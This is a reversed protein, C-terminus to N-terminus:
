SRKISEEAYIQKKGVNYYTTLADCFQSMIFRFQKPNLNEFCLAMGAADQRIVQAELRYGKWDIGISGNIELPKEKVFRIGCGQASLDIMEAAFIGEQTHIMLAKEKKIELRESKRFIPRQWAAQIAIIMGSANYASWFVNIMTSSFLLTGDQWRLFAIWWAFLTVALLLLHPLVLLAQFQSRDYRVEKSTVQFTSKIHFLEKLISFSLYPAMVMEYYHGWRMTRTRPSLLRTVLLQALAYPVYHDILQFVSADLLVCDFLFFLLPCLIFVLKQLNAFWYFVGDLYAIRQSFTLGKSFLPNLHRLVQLNGRCWRDRQKVLEPLTTASLGFVLEENILLSDYGKEQLLMGVAMDETISCTPYGGIQMVAERRFLANTGVHLVAGKSARASQIDRMFFDQENPIRKRLHYQYVDQNYYVQPTQVFAMNPDHFYGVTRKLFSQKPIMDADLVAFLDGNIKTLAYNINGAKAGENGERSLYHIGYRQCLRRLEERHGDDCIYVNCRDKPYDLNLAAAMTMELLYLPENYTCILVDIIPLEKEAYVEWGVQKPRYTGSFLYQFILFTLLGFIEGILLLTGCVFSFWGKGIPIISVRWVLYYLAIFWSMGLVLFRKKPDYYALLFSVILGFLMWLM